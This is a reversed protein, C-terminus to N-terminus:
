LYVISALSVGVCAIEVADLMIEKKKINIITTFKRLLQEDQEVMANIIFAAKKYIRKIIKYFVYM